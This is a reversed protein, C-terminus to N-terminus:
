DDSHTKIWEDYDGLIDTIWKIVKEGTGGDLGDDCCIADVIAERACDLCDKIGESLLPPKDKPLKRYGLEEVTKFIQEVADINAACFAFAGDCDLPNYWCEVVTDNSKQLAKCLQCWLHQIQEQAEKDM